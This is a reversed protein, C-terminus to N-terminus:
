IMIGKGSVAVLLPLWTAIHWAAAVNFADIQPKIVHAGLPAGSYTQLRWKIATKKDTAVAPAGVEAPPAAEKKSCAALLATSTASAISRKLPRRVVVSPNSAFAPM